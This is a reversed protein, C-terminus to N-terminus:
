RATSALLQSALSCLGRRFSERVAEATWGAALPGGHEALLAATEESSFGAVARLVFVTRLATPLSALWARV